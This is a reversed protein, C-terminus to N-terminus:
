KDSAVAPDRVPIPCEVMNSSGAVNAHTVAMLRPHLSTIKHVEKAKRDFVKEKGGIARLIVRFQLDLGEIGHNFLIVVLYTM